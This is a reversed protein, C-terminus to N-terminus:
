HHEFRSISYSRLFNLQLLVLFKMDRMGGMCAASLVCWRRCGGGIRNWCGMYKRWVGYFVSQPCCFFSLGSPGWLCKLDIVMSTWWWVTFLNRTRNYTKIREEYHIKSWYLFDNGTDPTFNNIVFNLQFDNWSMEIM